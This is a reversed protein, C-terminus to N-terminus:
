QNSQEYGRRVTTLWSNLLREKWAWGLFPRLAPSLLIGAQVEPRDEFEWVEGFVKRFADIGSNCAGM